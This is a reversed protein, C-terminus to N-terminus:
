TFAFFRVISPMVTGLVVSVWCASILEANDRLPQTQTLFLLEKIIHENYVLLGKGRLHRLEGM